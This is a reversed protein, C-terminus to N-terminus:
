QGQGPEPVRARSTVQPPVAAPRSRGGARLLPAAQPAPAAQGAPGTQTVPGAEMVPVTQTVLGPRPTPGTRRVPDAPPGPDAPAPPTTQPATRPPAGARPVPKTRSGPGAKPPAPPHPGAAPSRAGALPTAATGPCEPRAPGAGAEQTAGEKRQRSRCVAPHQPRRWTALCGTARCMVPTRGQPGRLILAEPRVGRQTGGPRRPGPRRLGPPARTRGAPQPVSPM